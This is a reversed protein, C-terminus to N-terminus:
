GSRRAARRGATREAHEALREYALAIIHMERRAEHDSMREATARAGEALRRWHDADYTPHVSTGREREWRESRRPKRETGMRFKLFPQPTKCASPGLASSPIPPEKAFQCAFLRRHVPLPCQSGQPSPKDAVFRPRRCILCAPFVSNLLPSAARSHSRVLGKM